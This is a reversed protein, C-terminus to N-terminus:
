PLVEDPSRIPSDILLEKNRSQAGHLLHVRSKGVGFYKAILEILQVNAKGGAPAASLYVRLRGDITEGIRTHSARPQVRVALHLIDGQFRWPAKSRSPPSPSNM